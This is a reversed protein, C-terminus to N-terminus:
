KRILVVEGILKVLNNNLSTGNVTWIYKGGPQPKDKFTGDWGASQITSRFIENGWENFVRFDFESFPGGRVYLIDNHGDANPTFATPVVPTHYENDDDCAVVMVSDGSIAACGSDSVITLTVAYTGPSPFVHAPNQLSSSTFDGFNWYWAAITGASISSGDAFNASDPCTTLFTFDPVPVQNVFINGTATDACGGSTTVVLTITHAGTSTFTASPNQVSASDNGFSWSWTVINGNLVNSADAFDTIGNVCSTSSTFDATPKPQIIVALTDSTVPCNSIGIPNLIFNIAGATIDAPGPVYMANLTTDDPLFTGAGSSIWQGGTVPSITGNLLVNDGECISQDIGANASTAMLITVALTDEVSMCANTSVLILTAAGASIDDAGPIYTANLASDDPVFIGTGSTMWQIGTAGTVSGYLDVSDGACISQDTGANAAPSPIFTIVATDGSNFCANTASLVFTLNGGLTDSAGTQYVADPASADPIFIGSGATSWQVSGTGSLSGNLQINGIGSCVSTDNGAFVTLASTITIIMTDNAAGCNGNGTATLSIAVSGSSVDGAGPVYSVNLASDNPIFIGSGSTIWQAGTAATISGALNVSDGACIMQDPGANSSPTNIFTVVVTDASAACANAVSLILTVSGSITDAASAQYIANLTSADPIFSGSGGTTWQISGSGTVSGNLQINSNVACVSTDSGAFAAPASSITILLTDTAGACIGNGTSALIVAVSGSNVDGAGPVYTANMTSDNPIFIGSGSTIWQAGPAAAVSGALSVSDGACIMQDPGANSSPTNIFTVVVTDASAACANAVSLTLTVSGSITDGASAQYIANLTSADPIFSGSGGTTWQISGSGTVSGNLQINSNAACVSTDSGAFAAPASSITILMTDTAGACIGNGTSVLIVAVSGAGVDGAGPLYVANVTSDNPIFIGSGSSIWHCGGSSTVSGFLQVSDGACIAQDIGADSTPTGQFTLIATDSSNSCANTAVLVLSVNGAITDAAGSQYTANLTSANPIFTGTGTTTWQFSGSGAVSGNLQINGNGACVSTDNGAFATVVPSITLTMSDTSANCIGNGTTTLLLTANGSTIDGAGPVYVANLSSDNPLFTGSGTTTWLGGTAATVSGNLLVSDGICIVQDSGAAAAPAPMIQVLLSDSTNLCSNTAVLFLTVSGSTIDSAGPHYSANLTVNDPSFTGSGNTMWQGTGSGGTVSGNLLIGTTGECVITDNGASTVPVTTISILTTDSEAFCNGNDTSNLILQINGAASDAASLHYTANLTSDDPFFTGSGLTMWKGHSAGGTVTGNLNATMTGSCIYVTAGADVVPDPTFTVILSDPIYICANTPTLMLTVSGAAIDAPGPQYVANLVSDGPIFIGNGGTTWQGTGTSSIVSGSLQVNSNNACVSIDNGAFTVPPATVFIQVTDSEEFCSGNNTSVLILSITGLATDAASLNYTALLTNEDPSFTGTGTTTWRGTVSGGSVSGSLLATNSGNCVYIDPGANVIPVPTFTVLVSDTVPLCTGNGTSTLTLVLSGSSIDAPGPTYSANLTSDDPSFTGSGTTSWIGTSAGGTILGNLSIGLDNDM